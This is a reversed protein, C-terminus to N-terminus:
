ANYIHVLFQMGKGWILNTLDMLMEVTMRLGLDSVVAFYHTGVLSFSHM